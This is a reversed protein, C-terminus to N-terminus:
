FWRRPHMWEFRFWRLSTCCRCRFPGLFWLLGFSMGVLYSYYWNNSFATAHRELRHCRFCYMRSDWNAGRVQKMEVDDDAEHSDLPESMEDDNNVATPFEGLGPFVLADGATEAEPPLVGGALEAPQDSQAHTM